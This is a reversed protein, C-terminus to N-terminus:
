LSRGPLAKLLSCGLHQHHERRNSTLIFKRHYWQGLANADDAGHASKGNQDNISAASFLPIAPATNLTSAVLPVTRAISPDFFVDITCSTALSSPMHRHASAGIHTATGALPAM